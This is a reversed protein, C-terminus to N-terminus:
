KPRSFICDVSVSVPNYRLPKVLCARSPKPGLDYQVNQATQDQEIGNVFSGTKEEPASFTLRKSWLYENQRM